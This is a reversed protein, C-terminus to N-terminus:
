VRRVPRASSRALSTAELSAIPWFFQTVSRASVHFTGHKSPKIAWIPERLSRWYLQAVDIQGNDDLKILGAAIARQVSKRNANRARSYARVSMGM